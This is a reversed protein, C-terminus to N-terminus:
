KGRKTSFDWSKVRMGNTQDMPVWAVASGPSCPGGDGEPVDRGAQLGPSLARCFSDLPAGIFGPGTWPRASARGRRWRGLLGRCLSYYPWVQGPQWSQPKPSHVGGGWAHVGLHEGTECHIGTYGQSCKCIYQTFVDGRQSEDTM